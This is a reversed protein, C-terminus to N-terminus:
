SNEGFTLAKRFRWSGVRIARKGPRFSYEDNHSNQTSTSPEPVVEEPVTFVPTPSQPEPSMYIHKDDGSLFCPIDRLFVSSEPQRYCTALRVLPQLMGPVGRRM